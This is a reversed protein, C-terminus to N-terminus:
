MKLSYMYYRYLDQTKRKKDFTEPRPKYYPNGELDREVDEKNRLLRVYWDVGILRLFSNVEDFNLRFIRHYMYARSESSGDIGIYCNKNLYLFNLGMFILTSFLKSIDVHKLRAADDILGNGDIPGFALNYVNYLNKDPHEVILIHLEKSEIGIQTHIDSDFIIYKKDDSIYKPTYINDLNIRVM